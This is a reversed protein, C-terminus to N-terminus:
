RELNLRRDWGDGRYRPFTKDSTSEQDIRMRQNVYQCRPRSAALPSQAGCCRVRLFHGLWARSPVLGRPRSMPRAAATPLGGQAREAAWPVFLQLSPAM